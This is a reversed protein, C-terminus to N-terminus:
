APHLHVHRKIRTLRPSVITPVVPSITNLGSSLRRSDSWFGLSSLTLGHCNGGGPPVTKYQWPQLCLMSTPKALIFTQCFSQVALPRVVGSSSASSSRPALSDSFSTQSHVMRRGDITEGKETRLCADPLMWDATQTLLADTVSASWNVLPPDGQLWQSVFFCGGSLGAMICTESSHFGQFASLGSCSFTWNASCCRSLQQDSM